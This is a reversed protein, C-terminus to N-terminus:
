LLVDFLQGLLPMAIPNAGIALIGAMSDRKDLIVDTARHKNL